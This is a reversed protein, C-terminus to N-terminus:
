IYLVPIFSISHWIHVLKLDCIFCLFYHLGDNSHLTPNVGTDPRHACVRDIVAEISSDFSANTNRLVENPSVISAPSRAMTPTSTATPTGTSLGVVKIALPSYSREGGIEKIKLVNKLKKREKGDKQKDRNKGVIAKIKFKKTKLKLKDAKLDKAEKKERKKDKREKKKDSKEDTKVKEEVKVEREPTNERSEESEIVRQADPLRGERQAVSTQLDRLFSLGDVVASTLRKPSTSGLDPASQSTSPPSMLSESNLDENLKSADGSEDAVAPARSERLPPMWEYYRDMADM